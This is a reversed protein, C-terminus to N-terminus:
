SVGGLGLGTTQDDGARGLAQGLGLRQFQGGGRNLFIELEGGRGSGVLLDERGDGDVDSWSVGPGLQSLKHPLLPQREFDDFPEEHHVHKLLESADEFVLKLIPAKDEWRGSAGAEEIEYERNAKVDEVVSRKGSRWRVEIRMRS